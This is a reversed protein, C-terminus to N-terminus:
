LRRLRILVPVGVQRELQWPEVIRGSLLDTGTAAAIALLLALIGLAILGLVVGFLIRNERWALALGVAVGLALIGLVSYRM